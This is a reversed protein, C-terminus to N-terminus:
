GCKPCFYVRMIGANQGFRVRPLNHCCKLGGRRLHDLYGLSGARAEVPDPGQDAGVEVADLQGHGPGEVDVLLRGLLRHLAPEPPLAGLEQGSGM